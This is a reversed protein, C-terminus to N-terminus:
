AMSYLFLDFMERLTVKLRDSDSVFYMSLVRSGEVVVGHVCFSGENENHIPVIMAGERGGVRKYLEALDRSLSSAKNKVELAENSKMVLCDEVLDGPRQCKWSM